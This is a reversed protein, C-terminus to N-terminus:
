MTPQIKFSINNSYTNPHLFLFYLSYSYFLVWRKHAKLSPTARSMQIAGLTPFVYNTDCVFCVCHFILSDVENAISLV